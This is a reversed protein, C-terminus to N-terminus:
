FNKPEFQGLRDIGNFDFIELMEVFRRHEIWSSMFREHVLIPVLALCSVTNLADQLIGMRSEISLLKPWNVWEIM